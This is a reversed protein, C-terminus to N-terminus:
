PSSAGNGDGAGALAAAEAILQDFRPDGRLDDWMPNFKLDGFSEGFPIKVLEGLTILAKDHEGTWVYVEALMLAMMPGEVADTFIPLLEVARHGERLADEKRGLGADIAGLESLIAPSDPRKALAVMALRRAEEFSSRSEQDKGSSRALTGLTLWFTMDTKADATASQALAKGGAFDRELLHLWLRANQYEIGDKNSVADLAERAGRINGRAIELENKLAWLRGTVSEPLRLIAANAIRESDSYRRLGNPTQVLNFPLSCDQPDLEVAKEGDRVAEEWLGLRREVLGAITYFEITHAGSTAAIKLLEERTRRYDSLGHYYYRVLALHAEELNPELRLATEAANQVAALRAPTHDDGFRYIYVQAENLLCYALAFKPDRGIADDLLTVAEAWAHSPQNGHWTYVLSRARLYLDYAQMDQTPRKWIAAKERSSLTAKLQAVITQALESQLAFIDEVKRDYHEAWIQTDTRTDILQANIRVRDGSIQVSGELINAVGLARGIEKVDRTQGRYSAVGSRSIVKLDEVKGLDTLINDQVGDAFYSPPSKDGFSDFPLVAISKPPASTAASDSPSVVATTPRHSQSRLWLAFIAALMLVAVVAATRLGPRNRAVLCKARYHWSRGRAIVAEHALHRRIDAAFDAVKPYRCEPEKRLAFLVIADLNGRVLRANEQDAMRSSPAAPDQERVVTAIEERSPRSTSFKHPKEGSLMEYLLAGLAYVDSAETIPRGDTQEPSACIPTLRQESAATLEMSDEGPTLLKAIGFDLLKPEGDLNVLINSPKLDRHIVHKHHAVEVAACVKLFITLREAISLQHERAYRTVPAGAVYEMVFYPLGDGTTGADLLRAINPHDLRALIHREAAFRRLVEDTDTGRKLVKIAVEKEFQGDARSALYVTGMGGRGLERTVVYAGIRRGSEATEEQWLSVTAQEACDELSDTPDRRLAEAENVLSEAEALLAADNACRKEVLAVRAAANPQELADALINKLEHWRDPDIKPRSPTTTKVTM